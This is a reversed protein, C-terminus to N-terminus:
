LTIGKQAEIVASIRDIQRSYTNDAAFAKREATQEHTNWNSPSAVIQEFKQLFDENTDAMEILSPYQEYELTKTALVCRGSDLYEVSM